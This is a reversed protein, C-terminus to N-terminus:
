FQVIVKRIYLDDYARFKLCFKSILM